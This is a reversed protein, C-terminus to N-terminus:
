AYPDAYKRSIEEIKDKNMKFCQIIRPSFMGCEGEMVMSYAKEFDIAKRYATNTMLADFADAISVIQASLPINEGKLKEPYGKGDYREHHYRCIEWSYHFMKESQFDKLNDLIECGKTTHSKIMDFESPTLKLPKLLIDDPILLKGVDHYCSADAIYAIDEKNLNSEPFFSVLTDCLSRTIERVRKIHNKSFNRFEALTGIMNAFEHELESVAKQRAMDMNTDSNDAQSKGDSETKKGDNSDLSKEELEKIYMKNQICRSVSFRIKAASVPTMIIDAAGDELCKEANEDDLTEAMIIVPIYKMVSSKKMLSLIQFVNMNPQNLDIIACALNISKDSIARITQAGDIAKVIEYEDSLAKSVDSLLKFSCTSLLIFRKSEGM